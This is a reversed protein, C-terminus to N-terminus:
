SNNEDISLTKIRIFVITKIIMLIIIIVRVLFVDNVAMLYLLICYFPLLIRLKTKLTLGRKEKLQVLHKKYLSTSEFWKRMKSSGKIFCYSSFVLFPTTPLLPLIIGVVGISMSLIGLAIFGANKYM